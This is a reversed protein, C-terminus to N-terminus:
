RIDYVSKVYINKPTGSVIAVKKEGASMDFFNDSLRLDGAANGIMVKQAYADSRVVINDGQIEFSLKPDAFHYHKPATFLCTGESIVKDGAVFGYSLNIELPDMDSFDLPEFWLSSLAPVTTEFSGSKIERSLPDCLKWIVTGSISEATENSVNLRASLEIPAPEEICYPRLNIEGNEEASILVSAFMRKEAYHLAKWRGYYDISAWSAVPWIDNLQWVVTGMCRGRFRRFHEVGYRIADMQLLQSAYVLMEFSTPYLYTASLYKIIKGNAARNRQHMEMVRSFVNRDEPETFSEITAMSPFSQFGFESLYRFFYKRYDTFPKEGHWVDWYHTDGIDENWPNEFNGGASPSSPWYFKEPDEKKVIKPIIYEFIKTYDSKQKPTTEWVGDLTQTEMENNGCWVALCAHHRLRRVAEETEAIINAEFEDDLEYSACAYMFDQWVLLGLEDCIDYFYDDLYYGGGWVRIVNHNAFVADKLLSETRKRNVRSLINDEPIYDAGMAFIKLGNVEHAFTCGWKDKDTNVTVTRLGIRAKWEDLLKDQEDFISVCVDYLPQTGYGHPWWLKADKVEIEFGEKDADAIEWKRGGEELVSIHVRTHTEPAFVIQYIEFDLTVDAKKTCTQVYDNGEADVSEIIKKEVPIHKQTVHVTELKAKDGFILFVPRYLGADPLRPGWDWGYMCHAKRIHSFGSMAEKSGGTYCKKNEERIYKVPSHIVVRLVNEGIRGFLHIDFDWSRHMNNACGILVDNLYIDAITDIGEFRITCYESALEEWTLEFTAKFEFDNDMLKLAELENDRYFPDPMYGGELMASYVSGPISVPIEQDMGYVNEGIIRMTWNNSISQKKM